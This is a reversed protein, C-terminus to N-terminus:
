GEKLRRRSRRERPHDASTVRIVRSALLSSQNNPCVM